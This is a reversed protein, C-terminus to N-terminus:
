CPSYASAVQLNTRRGTIERFVYLAALLAPVLMLWLLKPYEFFM